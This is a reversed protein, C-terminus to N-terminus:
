FACKEYTTDLIADNAADGYTMETSSLMKVRANMPLFGVSNNCELAMSIHGKASSVRGVVRCSGTSALIESPGIIFAVAFTDIPQRYTLKGGRHEFIQKCDSTSQAWAGLLRNDIVDAMACEVYATPILIALSIIAALGTPNSMIAERLGFNALYWGAGCLSLSNSRVSKTAGSWAVLRAVQPNRAKAINQGSTTIM